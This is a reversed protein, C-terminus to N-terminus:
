QVKSINPGAIPPHWANAPKERMQREAEKKWSEERPRWGWLRAPLKNEAEDEKWTEASWRQGPMAEPNHTRHEQWFEKMLNNLIEKDTKDSQYQPEPAYYHKEPAIRKIVDAVKPMFALERRCLLFADDLQAASYERLDFLYVEREVDTLKKDYYVGLLLLWNLIM